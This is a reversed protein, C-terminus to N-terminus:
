RDSGYRYMEIQTQRWDEDVSEDDQDFEPMIGRPIAYRTTGEAFASERVQNEPPPTNVEDDARAYEPAGDEGLAMAEEATVVDIVDAWDSIGLYEDDEPHFIGPHVSLQLSPTDGVHFMEDETYRSENWSDIFTEEEVASRYAFLFRAGLNYADHATPLRVLLDPGSCRHIWLTATM